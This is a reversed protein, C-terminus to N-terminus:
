LVAVTWGAWLITWLMCLKLIFGIKVSSQNAATHFLGISAYAMLMPILPATFRQGAAIPVYWGFTLVSAGIVIILFCQIPRNLHILSLLILLAIPIGILLRSEGIPSPGLSRTIIYAEWGIGHLERQILETATHSEFFVRRIEPLSHSAALNALTEPDEPFEDMYLFYSNVNFTPSDYVLTNRILLPHATVLWGAFLIGTTAMAFAFRRSKKEHSRHMYGSLSSAPVAAALFILGTGKTLYALGLCIGAIFWLGGARRLQPSRHAQEMAIWSLTFFLTLWSECNALSSFYCFAQNTALLTVAIAATPYGRTRVLYLFLLLFTALSAAQSLAKGTGLDPSLSLLGIYLPHQNAQVYQGSYLDLLLQVPGGAQQTQKAFRLFAAPDSHSANNLVTSYASATLYFGILALAVTLLAAPRYPKDAVDAPKSLQYLRHQLAQLRESKLCTAYGMIALLVLNIIWVIGALAHQQLGNRGITQSVMLLTLTLGATILGFVIRLFSVSNM